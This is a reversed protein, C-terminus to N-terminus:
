PLLSMMFTTPKKFWLGRVHYGAMFKTFRDGVHIDTGCRGILHWESCKKSPKDAIGFEVM